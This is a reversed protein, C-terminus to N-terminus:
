KLCRSCPRYGESEAQEYSEFFIRNNEGPLTACTPLHFVKSSKNGIYRSTQEPATSPSDPVISSNGWTFTINKGDSTAIITGLLDTRYVSVEADELRSM